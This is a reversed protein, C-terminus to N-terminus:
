LLLAPIHRSDVARRYVRLHAAAIKRVIRDAKEVHSCSITPIVDVPMGLGQGTLAAAARQTPCIVSLARSYVSRVIPNTGPPQESSRTIVYPISRTLTLLLGAHGSTEDHAHVLVVQPMLCYATVAANAIQAVVGDCIELRRALSKDRVIVHQRVGLSCLGEVLKVLHEGAGNIAAELNIHGIEM